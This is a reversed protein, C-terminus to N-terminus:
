NCHRFSRSSCRGAGRNLTQTVHGRSDFLTRGVQIIREERLVQVSVEGREVDCDGDAGNQAEEQDDQVNKKPATRPMALVPLIPVRSITPEDGNPRCRGM